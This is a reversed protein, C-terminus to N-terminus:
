VLYNFDSFYKNEIKYIKYIKIYSKISCDNSIIQNNAILTPFVLM